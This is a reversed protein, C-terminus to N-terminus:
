LINKNYRKNLDYDDQTAQKNLLLDHIKSDYCLQFPLKGRMAEVKPAHNNKCFLFFVTAFCLCNRM